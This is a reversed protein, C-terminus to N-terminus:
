TAPACARFARRVEAAMPRAPCGGPTVACLHCRSQFFLPNCTIVFPSKDVPFFRLRVQCTFSRYVAGSGCLRSLLGQTLGWVWARVGGAGACPGDHGSARPRACAARRSKRRKANVTKRRPVCGSWVTSLLAYREGLSKWSYLLSQVYTPGAGNTSDGKYLVCRNTIAIQSSDRGNSREISNCECSKSPM